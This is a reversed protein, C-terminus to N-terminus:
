QVFQEFPLIRLRQKLLITQEILQLLCQRLPRQVGLQIMMQLLVGFLRGTIM